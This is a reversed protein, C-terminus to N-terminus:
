ASTSCSEAAVTVNPLHIAPEGARDAALVRQTFEELYGLWDIDNTKAREALHRARDRRAAPSSFNLSGVTLVGDYTRVGALVCRVELEGHLDHRERRLRDAIFDVTGDLVTFVYRGEAARFTTPESDFPIDAATIV